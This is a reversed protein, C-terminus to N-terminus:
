KTVGGLMEMLYSIYNETKCHLFILYLSTLHQVHPTLVHPLPSAQMPVCFSVQIWVEKSRLREYYNVTYDCIVSIKIQFKDINHYILSSPQCKVKLSPQCEVKKDLFHDCVWIM